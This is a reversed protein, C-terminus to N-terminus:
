QRHNLGAEYARACMTQITQETLYLTM